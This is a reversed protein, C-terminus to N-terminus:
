VGEKQGEERLSADPAEIGVDQKEEVKTDKGVKGRLYYLKAKTVEGKKKVAIKEVSPSHIPFVREVGEGFSIKRVTVTSRLGSGKKAIVIGEFIQTRAKGEEVIKVHISVTDGVKFPPIDKKIQAGEVYKFLDDKSAMKM